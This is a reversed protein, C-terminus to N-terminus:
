PIAAGALDHLLGVRERGRDHHAVVAAADDAVVDEEHLVEERLAALFVLDVEDRHVCRRSLWVNTLRKIHKKIRYISLSETRKVNNIKTFSFTRCLGKHGYNGFM